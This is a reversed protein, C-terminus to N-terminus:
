VSLKMFIKNLDIIIVNRDKYTTVGAVYDKITKELTALPPKITSVPLDVVDVVADVLIGTRIGEKSAIAISLNSSKSSEPLGFIKHINLVSEIEGRVNIIGIIIESCGPVFSISNIVVIEKINEGYFAYLDGALTCIVLKVKEEEVDVTMEQKKMKAVQELIEKTKGPHSDM